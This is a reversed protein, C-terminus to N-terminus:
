ESDASEYKMFDNVILWQLFDNANVAVDGCNDKQKNQLDLIVLM